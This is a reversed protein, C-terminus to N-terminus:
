EEEAKQRREADAFAERISHPAVPVHWNCFSGTRTSWKSNYPCPERGGLKGDCPVSLRQSIRAVFGLGAVEVILKRNARTM